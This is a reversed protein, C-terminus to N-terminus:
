AKVEATRTYRRGKWEFTSFNSKIIILPVLILNVFWAPGFYKLLHYCNYLSASKYLFLLDVAMKIGLAMMLSNSISTDFALVIISLWIAGYFLLAPIFFMLVGVRLLGDGYAGWRFRQNLFHRLSSAGGTKVISEASTALAIKFDTNHHIYNLLFNDEAPRVKLQKLEEKMLDYINRRYALNAATCTYASGAEIYAAGLARQSFYDVSDIGRWINEPKPYAAHGVVIGVEPQFYSNLATLWGKPHTCDADTSAIIEGTAEDLGKLLATKKPVIAEGDQVKIPIFNDHKACYREIIKATGDSSCDDAIIVQYLKPPYDQKELSQLCKALNDAENHAAIIVSISHYKENNYIPIRFLRGFLYLISLAYIGALILLTAELINM